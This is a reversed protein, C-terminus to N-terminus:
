ERMEENRVEERTAMLKRIPIVLLALLAAAAFLTLATRQFLLPMENLKEPDM